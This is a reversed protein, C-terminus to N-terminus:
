SNNSPTPITESPLNAPATLYQSPKLRGAAIAAKVQPYTQEFGDKVMQLCRGETAWFDLGPVTTKLDLLVNKKTDVDNHVPESPNMENWYLAYEYPWAFLPM